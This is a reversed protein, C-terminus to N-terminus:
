SWNQPRRPAGTCSPSTTAQNGRHALCMPTEVLHHAPVYWHWSALNNAGPSITRRPWPPTAEECGLDQAVPSSSRPYFRQRLKCPSQALCGLGWAGPWRRRACDPRWRRSSPRDWSGSADPPQRQRLPLACRFNLQRLIYVKCKDKDMNAVLNYEWHCKSVFNSM